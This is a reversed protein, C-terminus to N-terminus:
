AAAGDTPHRFLREDILRMLPPSGRIQTLDGCWSRGITLITKVTSSPNIDIEPGCNALRPAEYGHDVGSGGM